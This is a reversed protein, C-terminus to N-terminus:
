PNHKGINKSFLVVYFSKHHAPLRAQQLLQLMGVDDGEVVDDVGLGREGEDKLEDVGVQGLVQFVMRSAEAGPISVYFGM